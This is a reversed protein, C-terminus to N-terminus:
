GSPRRRRFAGRSDWVYKQRTKLLQLVGGMPDRPGAGSGFDARLRSPRFVSWLFVAAWGTETGIGALTAARGAAAPKQSRL